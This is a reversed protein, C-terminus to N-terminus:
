SPILHFSAVFWRGFMFNGHADHSFVIVKHVQHVLSHKTKMNTRTTTAVCPFPSRNLVVAVTCSFSFLSAPGAAAAVGAGFTRPRAQHRTQGTTARCERPRCMQGRKQFMRQSPQDRVFQNLVLILKSQVALFEAVAGAPKTTPRPAQCQHYKQAHGENEQKLDHIEKEPVGLLKAVTGGFSSAAAAIRTGGGLKGRVPSPHKALVVFQGVHKFAPDIETGFRGLLVQTLKVVRQGRDQCTREIKDRSREDRQQQDHRQQPVVHHQVDFELVSIQQPVQGKKTGNGRDAAGKDRRLRRRSGRRRPRAFVHAVKLGRGTTQQALHDRVRM